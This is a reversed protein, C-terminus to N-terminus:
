TPVAPSSYGKPSEWFRNEDLSHRLTIKGGRAVQKLFECTKFRDALKSSKRKKGIKWIRRQSGLPANAWGFKKIHRRAIKLSASRMKAGLHTPVTPSPFCCVQHFVAAM